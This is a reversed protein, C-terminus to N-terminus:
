QVGGKDNRGAPSAPQELPQLRCRESKGKGDDAPDLCDAALQAPL